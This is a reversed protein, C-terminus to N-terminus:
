AATLAPPTDAGEIPTASADQSAAADQPQVQQGGQRASLMARLLEELQSVRDQLAQGEASPVGDAEGDAMELNLDYAAGSLRFIENWIAFIREKGLANALEPVQLIQGLLTSLVQAGQSNVPREQGDRSDFYYDYILDKANGVIQSKLPVVANPDESEGGLVRFGAKRVTDTLYRGVVPVRYEQTSSCVLSEFLMRKVASRQEDIGDSIFTSIANTTSSIETVERASVERPNPQGIENPSLVLLRDAMNLLEMIAKMSQEISTQMNAQVISILSRAGQGPQAVGLEQLKSGSYFFAQPEVYFDKTKMGNEIYTRVNDDLADKDICWIQVLGARINLLMQSFLNTLQDQFPMLEMAMSNNVLRDDNENMGGYIAPLSPLFEAGIVTGDGAVTFRVWINQNLKGIDESHPNLQEFHETIVCGRDGEEAGYMGMRGVRENDAGPDKLEPFQLVKPDFYYNFYAAQASIFGAWSEGTSVSDLNYYPGDKIDRFPVINWYGIYRPGNDTNINPLPASRDAYVRTPHPAVFDVGERVVYSELDNETAQAPLNLNKLRWGTEVDWGCRPFIVSRGYLFMHRYTQPFFHRYNYQDAMIDIRQSLADGRLKAVLDTGRPEYRFYPWLNSFRATQAALRRTVYSRILNISVEYLRPMSVKMESGDKKICSKLPSGDPASEIAKVLAEIKLKGQAYMLLPLTDPQIPTSDWAMDIAQYLKAHKLCDTWGDQLRSRIRDEIRKRIAYDKDDSNKCTFIERLRDNTCGTLELVKKHVM